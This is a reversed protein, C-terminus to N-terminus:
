DLAGAQMEVALLKLCKSCQDDELCIPLPFDPGNAEVLETLRDLMLAKQESYLDAPGLCFALGQCGIPEKPARAEAIRLFISARDMLFWQHASNTRVLVRNYEHRAYFEASCILLPDAAKEANATNSLSQLTLCACLAALGQRM